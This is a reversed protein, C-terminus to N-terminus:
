IIEPYQDLPIFPTDTGGEIVSQLYEGIEQPSNMYLSSDNVQALTTYHQNQMWISGLAKGENDWLGLMEVGEIPMFFANDRPISEHASTGYYVTGDDEFRPINLVHCAHGLCCRYEPTSAYELVGNAKKTEPRKLYDIWKQRNAFIEARTYETM